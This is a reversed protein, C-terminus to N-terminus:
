RYSNEHFREVVRRKQNKEQLYTGHNYRFFYYILTIKKLKPKARILYETLRLILFSLNQGLVGDHGLAGDYGVGLVGDQRM